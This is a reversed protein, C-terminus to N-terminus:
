LTAFNKISITGRMASHFSCQYAYNGTTGIPIQWYLYGSTKGQASAGTSVTGANSVHILGTSYQSGGSTEILFPHGGMSADNLNFAITTGSIAYITPNDGSYQNNFQYKLADPATVDLQTIAPYTPIVGSPLGASWTSGNYILADGSSAGATSVDSLGTLDIGDFDIRM